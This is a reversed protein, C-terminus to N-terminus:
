FEGEKFEHKWNGRYNKSKKESKEIAFDFNWFYLTIKKVIVWLRDNM